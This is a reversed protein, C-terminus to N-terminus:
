VVFIDKTDVVAALRQKRIGFLTRGPVANATLVVGIKVIAVQRAM